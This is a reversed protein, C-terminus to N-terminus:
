KPFFEGHLGYPIHHPAIVRGLETFKRADLILLFSTKAKTDLVVSLVVGDDESKADPKAVFVPEEAICDDQSWSVLLKTRVDIKVLGRKKLGKLQGYDDYGYVFNYQKGNCRDYNIRPMEISSGLAEKVVNKTALDVKYRVFRASLKHEPDDVLDPAYGFGTADEYAAMDIYLTGDEEYSNIHHWAFVPDAWFEGALQQKERSVLLIRMQKGAQWKYHSSFSGGKLLDQPNILLPFEVLILYKETMAFSHMYAPQKVPIEAIVERVSSGKKMTYLVYKAEPFFQVQYNIVDGSKADYHPHACEWIKSKPLMDNYSFLGVTDLTSKDFIVPLPIETLAVLNNAFRAVNVNANPIFATETKSGAQGFGAFDLSKDVVMTEYASTRLFRNAYIVEGHNFRFSHLMALGDFWHTVYKEGVNFLAPGNRILTGSLWEPVEGTGKLKTEPLEVTLSTLGLPRDAQLLATFSLLLLLLKM